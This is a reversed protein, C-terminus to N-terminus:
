AGSSRAATRDNCGCGSRSTPTSTAIHFLQEDQFVMGIGRRHTPQTTIDCGDLLVQGADPTLLGAIVRLLTSKGSGSPGLLALLEGGAVTLDVSSLVPTGAFAVSVDRVELTLAPM